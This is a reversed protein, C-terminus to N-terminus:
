KKSHLVPIKTSKKPKKNEHETEKIWNVKATMDPFPLLNNKPCIQINHKKFFPKGHILNNASKPVLLKENYCQNELRFPVSVETDVSVLQSSAMKVTSITTKRIQLLKEIGRKQRLERFMQKSDYKRM